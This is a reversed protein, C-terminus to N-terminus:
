DWWSRLHKTFMKGFLELDAKSQEDAKKTAAMFRRREDDNLKRSLSLEPLEAWRMADDLYADKVIRELLTRCIAIERAHREGNMLHGNRMVPEMRRLKFVIVQALPEWDCDYDNWVVDKWIWLRKVGHVVDRLCSWLNTFPRATWRYPPNFIKM